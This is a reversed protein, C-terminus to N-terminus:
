YCHMVGCVYSIKVSLRIIHFSSHTHACSTHKQWMTWVTHTHTHTRTHAHTHAHTRAHMCAHMCTHICYLLCLLLCTQAVFQFEYAVCFVCLVHTVHTWLDNSLVTFVCVALTTAYHSRSHRSRGELRDSWNPLWVVPGVPVPLQGTDRSRWLGSCCVLSVRGEVLVNTM